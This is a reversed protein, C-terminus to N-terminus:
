FWNISLKARNNGCRTMELVCIPMLLSTSSDKRSNQGGGQNFSPFSAQCDGSLAETCDGQEKAKPFDTKWDTGKNTTM